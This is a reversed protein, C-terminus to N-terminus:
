EEVALHDLHALTIETTWGILYPNIYELTDDPSHIRSIDDAIMILSPIGAEAFPYHDSIAGEPLPWESSIPAGLDAALTFTTQRLNEDGNVRLVRGSGVVDFNFMARINSREEENMSEVYHNSGNLGGAQAGFLVVRVTFPYSKDTIHKAVSLVAAIGSTSENAGPTDARTDYHGGVVVVSDPNAAGPKTAVVNRSFSEVPVVSVTADVTGAGMSERLGLGTQRDISVAPISSPIEM